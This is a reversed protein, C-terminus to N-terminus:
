KALREIFFNHTSLEGINKDNELPKNLLGSFILWFRVLYDRYLKETVSLRLLVAYV